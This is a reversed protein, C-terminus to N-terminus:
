VLFQSELSDVRQPSWILQTEHLANIQNITSPAQHTRMGSIIKKSLDSSELESHPHTACIFQFISNSYTAAHRRQDANWDFNRQEAIHRFQHFKADLANWEVFHWQGYLRGAEEHTEMDFHGFSAVTAWYNTCRQFGDM